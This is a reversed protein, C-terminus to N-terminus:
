LWEVSCTTRLAHPPCVAHSLPGQRPPDGRELCFSRSQAPWGKVWQGCTLPLPQQAIHPAPYPYATLAMLTLSGPEPTPRDLSAQSQRVMESVFEGGM